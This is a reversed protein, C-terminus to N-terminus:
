EHRLSAVPDQEAARRAPMYGFVIGVTAAVGFSILISAPSIITIIGTVQTIVKALLVGAIIGAIGGSLSIMTAEAMFQFRIDSKRAGTAQRIGIEHIREMVSALMINMIGIGGVLLSIGAIAGLVINFIDKTRQEKELLMEPIKIEFDEVGQHRRKLMRNIIESTPVLQSSEQVQVVIKDLQQMPYGNGNINTSAAISGGDFMITSSGGEGISASTILSRDSFRLLVTQIPAYISNNFDSVGLDFNAEPNAMRSELVGIVQLWVHGCKIYEGIPNRGAFFRSKIDSGIVAVASGTEVHRDNFLTGNEVNLNFVEFFHPTVGTLKSYGQIGKRVVRTEYVVEPSVRKVTPILELISEADLLTLGPSFKQPRPQNDDQGQQADETSKPLIIINNVGVLKIQNLIEQQAGSGIALMAIVAAVGFIVGLATLSSRVKNAVVADVASQLNFVHRKM